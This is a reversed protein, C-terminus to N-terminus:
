SPNSYYDTHCGVNLCFSIEQRLKPHPPVYMAAAWTLLCSGFLGVAHCIGLFTDDDWAPTLRVTAPRSWGGSPMGSVLELPSWVRPVCKFLPMSLRPLEEALARQLGLCEESWGSPLFPSFLIRETWPFCFSLLMPGQEEIGTPTGPSQSASRLTSRGWSSLVNRLFCVISLPLVWVSRLARSWLINSPWEWPRKPTGLCRYLSSLDCSSTVIRKWGM